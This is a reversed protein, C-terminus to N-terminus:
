DTGQAQTNLASDSDGLGEEIHPTSITAMYEKTPKPLRKIESERKLAESKTAHEEKFVLQVPRRARTYKAGLGANHQRVRRAIDTTFGTYLSNDSCRVM